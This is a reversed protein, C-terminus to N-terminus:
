QWKLEVTGTVETQQAPKPLSYSILFQGVSIQTDTLELKGLHHDQLRKLLVTTQIKQRAVDSNRTNLKRAM